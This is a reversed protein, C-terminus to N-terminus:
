FSDVEEDEFVIYDLTEIHFYKYAYMVTSYQLPEWVITSTGNTASQGFFQLVKGKNKRSVRSAFINLFHCGPPCFDSENCM